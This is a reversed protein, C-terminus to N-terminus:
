YGEIDAVPSEDTPGNRKKGLIATACILAADTTGTKSSRVWLYRKTNKCLINMSQRSEDNASTVQTFDADSLATAVGTNDTDSEYVAFDVTASSSFTGTNLVILCEDYDQTDISIGSTTTSEGNFLTGTATISVPDIIQQTKLNEALKGRM